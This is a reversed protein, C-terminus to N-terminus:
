RLIVIREAARWGEANANLIYTGSPVVCGGDYALDWTIRHIGPARASDTLLRVRQGSIDYINLSVESTEPLHLDCIFLDSCPHGTVPIIKIGPLETQDATSSGLGYSYAIKLDGCLHDYYSIFPHGNDDLALSPYQPTCEEDVIEFNWSQDNKWGYWLDSGSRFVLSPTGDDSCVLSVWGYFPVDLTDILWSGDEFFAFKLTEMHYAIFPNGVPDLAISCYECNRRANDELVQYDWSTGDYVAYLMKRYMSYCVHISGDQEVVHDSSWVYSGDEVVDYDWISVGERTALQLYIDSLYLPQYCIVPKEEPLLAISSSEEYRDLSDVVEIHWDNDIEYAYRLLNTSRDKYVIHPIAADGLVLSVGYGVDGDTDVIEIIWESHDLRAYSLAQRSNDHFGVHPWKNSDVAVSSYLGRDGGPDIVETNWGSETLYAHCLDGDAHYSVHPEGFPDIDISSFAGREGVWDVISSTWNNGDYQAVRLAKNTEDYYSIIPNDDKLGISNWDGVMGTSDVVSINWEEGTHFAYKLLHDPILDYYGSQYSIHPQDNEDLILSCGVGLVGCDVWKVLWTTGDFHRYILCEDDFHCLHPRENSDLCLSTYPLCSRTGDFVEIAWEVGDFYAYSIAIGNFYCVHINRERDVAVSSEAPLDFRDNITDFTWIGDIQHAILLDNDFKASYSITPNDMDDLAISAWWGVGPTEDVIEINWSYGDHYAHYLNDGGYVIHPHGQSDCRLSRDTMYQFSHRCDVCQIEWDHQESFIITPILIVLFLLSLGLVYRKNVKAPNRRCGM